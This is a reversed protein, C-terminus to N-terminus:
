EKEESNEIKNVVFYDKILIFIERQGLLLIYWSSLYNAEYILHLVDDKATVNLSM